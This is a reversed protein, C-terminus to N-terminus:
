DETSEVARGQNFAGDDSDIDSLLRPKRPGKLISTARALAKKLELRARRDKEVNRRGQQRGRRKSHEQELVVVPADSDDDNGAAMAKSTSRTM